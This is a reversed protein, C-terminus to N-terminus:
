PGSLFEQVAALYDPFNERRINHGANRIQVSRLHPALTGAEEAILPTVLSGRDREGFVLLTPSVLRAFTTQWTEAYQPYAAPDFQKKSATWAALDDEHWLPYDARGKAAIEADSLAQFAAAQQRLASLREQRILPPSLPTLPPDELILKRVKDPIMGACIAAARAGVSHGMLVLDNLGLGTIAEALDHGPDHHRDEGVRSSHGHGRTDLMIVDFRDALVAALRAWCLGNDTLGHALLLPRAKAGTRHYTLYGESVAVRGTTWDPRQAQTGHSMEGTVVCLSGARARM